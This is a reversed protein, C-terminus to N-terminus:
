PSICRDFLGGFINAGIGNKATNGSFYINLLSSCNRLYLAISQIFCENESTCAGSNTDDAVYVAGDYRARNGNFMLWIKSVEFMSKQTLKSTSSTAHIGGGRMAHNGFITCNGRIDLDSQYLSIGGGSGETANNNTVAIGDYMMIQSETALIAGGHRAQSNSLSNVGTFIVTSKFSTIVGGEQCTRSYVGNPAVKNDFSPETCNQFRTYGSFTLNGNFVYLSGLNYTFTSQTSCEISHLTKPFSTIEKTCIYIYILM